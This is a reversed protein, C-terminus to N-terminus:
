SSECVSLANRRRAASPFGISLIMTSWPCTPVRTRAHHQMDYGQQMKEALPKLQPPLHDLPANKMGAFHAVM